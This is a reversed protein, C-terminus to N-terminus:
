VSPTEVYIHPPMLHAVTSETDDPNLTDDNSASERINM